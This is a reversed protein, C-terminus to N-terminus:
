LKPAPLAPLPRAVQAGCGRIELMAAALREYDSRQNYIHASIRVYMVDNFRKIPV